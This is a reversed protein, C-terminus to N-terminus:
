SDPPECDGPGPGPGAEEAAPGAIRYQGDFWKGLDLLRCRDSCFPFARNSGREAAPQRCVPCRRTM